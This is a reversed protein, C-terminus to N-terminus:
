VQIFKRPCETRGVLGMVFLDYQTSSTVVIDSQQPLRNKKHGQMGCVFLYQSLHTLNQAILLTILRVVGIVVVLFEHSIM